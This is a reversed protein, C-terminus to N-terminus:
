GECNHRGYRKESDNKDVCRLLHGHTLQFVSQFHKISRPKGTTRNDAVPSTRPPLSHKTLPELRVVAVNSRRSRKQM